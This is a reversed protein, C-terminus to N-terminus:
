LNFKSINKENSTLDKWQVLYEIANQKVIEVKIKEIAILRRLVLSQLAKRVIEEIKAPTSPGINKPGKAIGLNRQASSGEATRLALYVMQQTANMGCHFANMPDRVMRKTEPDILAANKQNKESDLFLKGDLSNLQAPEGFGAFSDGASCEGIGLDVTTM